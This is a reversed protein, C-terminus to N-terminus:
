ADTYDVLYTGGLGPIGGGATGVKCNTAAGRPGAQFKKKDKGFLQPYGAVIVEGGATMQSAVDVYVNALLRLGIGPVSVGTQLSGLNKMTDAYIQTSSKSCGRTGTAKPAGDASWICAALIEPFGVDNGGINFTALKTTSPSLSLLQPLEPEFSYQSNITYFDAITAGSCAAFTM